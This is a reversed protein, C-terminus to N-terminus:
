RSQHPRVFIASVVCGLLFALSALRLAAHQGTIFDAHGTVFAGLLAIGLVQGIQRSTNIVASATGSREGPASELIMATMASVTLSTGLGAALLAPLLRLYATHQQAFSLGVLGLSGLLMGLVMPLRSGLRSTLQGGITAGILVMM